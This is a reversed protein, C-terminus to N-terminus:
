VFHKFTVGDGPPAIEANLLIVVSLFPPQLYRFNVYINQTLATTHDSYRGGFKSKPEKLMENKELYLYFHFAHLTM